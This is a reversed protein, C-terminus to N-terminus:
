KRMCAFTRTWCEQKCCQTSWITAFRTLGLFAVRFRTWKLKERMSVLELMKLKVCSYFAFSIENHRQVHGKSDGGHTSVDTHTRSHNHLAKYRTSFISNHGKPIIHKLSTQLCISNFSCCERSTRFTSSKLTNWHPSHAHLSTCHQLLLVPHWVKGSALPFLMVASGRHQLTRTQDM